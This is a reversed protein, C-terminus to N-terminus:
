LTGKKIKDKKPENEAHIVVTATLSKGLAVAEGVVKGELTVEIEIKSADTQGLGQTTFSFNETDAKRYIKSWTTENLDSIVENKAAEGEYIVAMVKHISADESVTVTVLYEKGEPLIEPKYDNDSSCSSMSTLLLALVIFKIKGLM